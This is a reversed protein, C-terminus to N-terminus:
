ATPRQSCRSTALGGLGAEEGVLPGAALADRQGVMQELQGVALLGLDQGALDVGAPIQDLHGPNAGPYGAPTTRSPGPYLLRPGVRARGGAAPQIGQSSCRPSDRM